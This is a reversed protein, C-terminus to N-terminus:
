KDQSTLEDQQTKKDRDSWVSKLYYRIVGSVNQSFPVCFAQISSVQRYIRNSIKIDITKGHDATWLQFILDLDAPLKKELMKRSLEKEAEFAEDPKVSLNFKKRNNFTDNLLVASYTRNLESANEVHNVEFCYVDTLFKIISEVAHEFYFKGKDEEGYIKGPNQKLLLDQCM